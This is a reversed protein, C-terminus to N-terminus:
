HTTTRDDHQHRQPRRGRVRLPKAETRRAAVDVAVVLRKAVDEILVLALPDDLDAESRTGFAVEADREAVKEVERLAELEM